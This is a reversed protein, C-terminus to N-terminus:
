MSISTGMLDLNERLTQRTGSEWMFTGKIKLRRIFDPGLDLKLDRRGEKGREGKGVCSILFGEAVPM